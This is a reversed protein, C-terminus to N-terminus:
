PIVPCTKNQMLPWTRWSSIFLLASPTQYSMLFGKKEVCLQIRMSGWPLIHPLFAPMPTQLSNQSCRPLPVREKLQEEEVQDEDLSLSTTAWIQQSEPLLVTQWRQCEFMIETHLIFMFVLTHLFFWTNESGDPMHFLLSSQVQFKMNHKDLDM